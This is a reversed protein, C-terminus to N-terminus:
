KQKDKLKSIPHKGDRWTLGKVDGRFLRYIHSRGELRRDSQKYADQKKGDHGEDTGVDSVAPHLKISTRLPRFQHFFLQAVLGRRM